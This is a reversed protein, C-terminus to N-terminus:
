EPEIDTHHPVYIRCLHNKCASAEQYGRQGSGYGLVFGGLFSFVAIVLIIAFHVKKNSFFETLSKHAYQSDSERDEEVLSYDYKSM